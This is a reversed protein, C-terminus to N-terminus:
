AAKSPWLQGLQQYDDLLLIRDEQFEEPRDPYIAVIPVDPLGAEKRILHVLNGLWRLDSNTLIFYPHECTALKLAERADEAKVVTYGLAELNRGMWRRIDQDDDVVLVPSPARVTPATKLEGIMWELREADSARKLFMRSPEYHPNKHTEGHLIAIPHTSLADRLIAPTNRRRNYQCLSTISLQPTLDNRRSEYEAWRECGPAVCSVWEMEGVCRLGSFGEALTQKVYGSLMDFTQDPDFRGTPLYTENGTSFDLAGRERERHVDIGATAFLAAMEEITHGHVIYRCRENRELGEKIFPVITELQERESEYILCAHDGRKLLTSQHTLKGDV